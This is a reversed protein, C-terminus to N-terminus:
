RAVAVFLAALAIVMVVGVVAYDAGGLEIGTVQQALDMRTHSSPPAAGQAWGHQVPTLLSM